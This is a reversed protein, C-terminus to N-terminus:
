ISLFYKDTDILYFKTMEQAVVLLRIKGDM